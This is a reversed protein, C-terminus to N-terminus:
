IAAGQGTQNALACRVWHNPSVQTLGVESRDCLGKVAHGCRSFFPCGPKLNMLIPVSGEISALREGRGNMSPMANMLAITYPHAPAQFLKEVTAYEVIKGAYMVAVDDAMEAIVGLDHTIFIVSMDHGAKLDNMLRLVQAQITVDLATTPEDAILVSPLGSIAMAIMARQRMGGSLQHPYENLRQAPNSIGVSGLLETAIERAQKKDRTRHLRISETIQNGITHVPSFAKMPEQFIMAIEGGRIRQYEKGRPNLKALNVVSGKREGKNLRLLIDGELKAFAPLLHLISLTTVSKGCGSEGVIGLTRGRKLEFSVGDVAKMIGEDLHFYTRLDRVELLVSEDTAM